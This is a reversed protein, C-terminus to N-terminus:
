LNEQMHEVRLSQVLLDRQGPGHPIFTITTNGPLLTFANDSFRGQALTTLVVFVATARATLIIPISGDTSADQAVVTASVTTPQLQLAKPPVFLMENVSLPSSDM